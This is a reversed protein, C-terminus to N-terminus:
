KAAAPQTIAARLKRLKEKVIRANDTGVRLMIKQGASRRELEPDAFQYRVKKQVLVPPEALEPAALLDDIAAVLRDNFYADPYGLDVYAQQFLPYLERYLGALKSIDLAQLLAMYPAYRAANAPALQLQGNENATQMWAAAPRVPWMKSPAESRPLNDVTAVIHRVIQEPFFLTQWADKGVLASLAQAVRADSDQVAPLAEKAAAPELPHQIPPTVPAAQ